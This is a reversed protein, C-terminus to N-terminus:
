FFDVILKIFLLLGLLISILGIVKKIIDRKEIVDESLAGLPTAILGSIIIVMLLEIQFFTSGFFIFYFLFGFGSIIAESISTSIRAKKYDTELLMEEFYRALPGYGAGSIGQNFGSLGSLFLMEKRNFHLRKLIILIGVVILMGAIYFIMFFNRIQEPIIYILAVSITIGVIGLISFLVTDKRIEKTPTISHYLSFYIVKLLGSIMQAVLIIPLIVLPNFDLLLLMPSLLGYGMKYVSDLFAASLSIIFVILLIVIEM